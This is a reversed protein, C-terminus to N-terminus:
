KNQFTFWREFTVKRNAKVLFKELNNCQSNAPANMPYAVVPRVGHGSGEWAVRDIIPVIYAMSKGSGPSADLPCSRFAEVATDLEKATVSVESKSLSTIGLTEILKDMRRTSVGAQTISRDPLQQHRVLELAVAELAVGQASYM